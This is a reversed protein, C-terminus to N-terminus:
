VKPTSECKFNKQWIAIRVNAPVGMVNDKESLHCLEGWVVNSGNYLGRVRWHLHLCQFSGDVAQETRKNHSGHKTRRRFSFSEEGFMIGFAAAHFM